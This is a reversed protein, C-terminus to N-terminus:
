FVNSVYVVNFMEKDGCWVVWQGNCAAPDNDLCQNSGFEMDISKKLYFLKIAESNYM